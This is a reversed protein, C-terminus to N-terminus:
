RCSHPSNTSRYIRSFGIFANGGNFCRYSGMKGASSILDSKMITPGIYLTSTLSLVGSLFLAGIGSWLGKAAGAKIVSLQQEFETADKIARWTEGSRSGAQILACTAAPFDPSGIKGIADSLDDGAEVYTLLKASIEQIKGTFNTRLLNLADSTGVRSALMSSLRTFFVHRDNQTFASTILWGMKKQISIVRGVREFYVRAEQENAANLELTKIGTRIRVKAQYRNV